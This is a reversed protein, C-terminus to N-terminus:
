AKEEEATPKAVVEAKEKKVKEVEPEATIAEVTQDQSIAAREVIKSLTHRKRRSLPKTESIIVTDGINADNKEDHAMFKKSDVYSKRYLPHNKHTTVSVVITKDTKDSVVVGTLTKAM